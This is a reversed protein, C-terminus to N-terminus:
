KEDHRDKLIDELINIHLSTWSKERYHIIISLTIFLVYIFIFGWLLIFSDDKLLWSQLQKSFIFLLWPLSSVLVPLIGSGNKEKEMRYKIKILDNSNLKQYFSHIENIERIEELYNLPLNSKVIKKVKLYFKHADGRLSFM